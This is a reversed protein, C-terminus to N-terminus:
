KSKGIAANVLGKIFRKTLWPHKLAWRGLKGHKVANGYMEEVIVSVNQECWEIGNRDYREALDQCNCGEPPKIRWFELTHKITTGVKGKAM